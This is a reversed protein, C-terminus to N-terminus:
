NFEIGYHLPFRNNWIRFTINNFINWKASLEVGRRFSKNANEHCPLGNPGVEGNLVLENKFWM